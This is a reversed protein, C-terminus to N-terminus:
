KARIECSISIRRESVYRGENNNAPLGGKRADENHPWCAPLIITYLFDDVAYILMYTAVHLLRSEM